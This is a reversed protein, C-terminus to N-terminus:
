DGLLFSFPSFPKEEPIPPYVRYGGKCVCVSDSVSVLSDGKGCLTWCEVWRSKSVSPESATSCSISFLLIWLAKM